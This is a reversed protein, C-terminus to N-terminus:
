KVMHELQKIIKKNLVQKKNSITELDIFKFKCNKYVIASKMKEKRLKDISYVVFENAMRREFVSPNGGRQLHGLVIKRTQMKLNTQIWLALEETQKTGESVLALIYDRGNKIEKKLKKELSEYDIKLEPIM